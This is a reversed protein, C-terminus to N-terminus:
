VLTFLDPNEPDFRYLEVDSTHLGEENKGERSFYFLGDGLSIIGTAGWRMNCGWVGSEEHCIGLPKLALRNDRPAVTADAFYMYYNPYQPKKGRYVAMLWAELGEDYELNQVGWNTNGTYLFYKNRAALGSHHPHGQDLPQAVKEFERWDYELVVQDDNDTRDLDSYVGYTIYLMSPSGKPAGFAPGFGTGDVGSCGHRTLHPDGKGARYDETPDPLFVAKMVGDQQANMGIRDIKDVQFIACYFGDEAVAIGTTASIGRGISDTKYEISGYVQRDEPNWAICGLHGTLGEVTGLVKGDLDTKVLVTTFSFYMYGKERDLAIGQVHGNPWPGPNIHHPLTRM